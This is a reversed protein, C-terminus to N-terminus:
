TLYKEWAEKADNFQIRKGEREEEAYDNFVTNPMNNFADSIVGQAKALFIGVAPYIHSDSILNEIDYIMVENALRKLRYNLDEPLKGSNSQQWAHLATRLYGIREIVNFVKGLTSGKDFATEIAMQINNHLDIPGQVTTSLSPETIESSFPTLLIENIMRPLLEREREEDEKTKHPQSIDGGIAEPWDHIISTLLLIEQEEPSFEEKASYRLFFRTLGYMLLMHKLNNVDVGLIQEWEDREDEEVFDSFRIQDNLKKGYKTKSFIEHIKNLGIVMNGIQIQTPIPPQQSEKM